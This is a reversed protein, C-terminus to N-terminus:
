CFSEFPTQFPSPTPPRTAPYPPLPQRSRRGQLHRTRPSNRRTAAPKREDVGTTDAVPEPAPKRDPTASGPTPRRPSNRAAAPRAPPPTRRKARLDTAHRRTPSPTRYTPSDKPQQLVQPTSRTPHQLLRYKRRQSKTQHCIWATADPDIPTTGLASLRAAYLLQYHAETFEQLRDTYEVLFLHPYLSVKRRKSITSRLSAAHALQHHWDEPLKLLWKIAKSVGNCVWKEEEFVCKYLFEIFETKIHEYADRDNRAWYTFTRLLQPVHEDILSFLHSAYDVGQASEVDQVAAKYLDEPTPANVIGLHLNAEKIAKNHSARLVLYNIAKVETDVQVQSWKEPFSEVAFRHGHFGLVQESRQVFAKLLLRPTDIYPDVDTDFYDVDLSDKSSEDDGFLSHLEEEESVNTTPPTGQTRYPSPPQLKKASLPDLKSYTPHKNAYATAIDADQLYLPIAQKAVFDRYLTETYTKFRHPFIPMSKPIHTRRTFKQSLDRRIKHHQTNKQTAFHLITNTFTEM